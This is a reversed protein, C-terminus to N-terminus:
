ENLESRTISLTELTQVVDAWSSCRSLRTLPEVTRNWPQDFVIAWKGGAKVFDAVNYPSDDVLVDVGHNSKDKTHHIPIHGFYREVWRFTPIITESDRHTLLIVDYKRRLEKMAEIAGRMPPFSKVFYDNKLALIIEKSLTTGQEPFDMNWATIDKEELNLGFKGNICRLFSPMSDCLVNDIDVGIKM